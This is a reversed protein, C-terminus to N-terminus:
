GAGHRDRFRQVALAADREARPLDRPDLLPVPALRVPTVLAGSGIGRPKDGQQVVEYALGTQQWFRDVQESLTRDGFTLVVREALGNCFEAWM